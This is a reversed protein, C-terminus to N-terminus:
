VKNKLNNDLLNKEFTLSEKNTLPLGSMMVELANMSDFYNNDNIHVQICNNSIFLNTELKEIKQWENIKNWVM